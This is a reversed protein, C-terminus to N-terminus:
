EDEVKAYITVMKGNIDCLQYGDKKAEAACLQMPREWVWWDYASTMWFYTTCLMLVFYTVINVRVTRRLFERM